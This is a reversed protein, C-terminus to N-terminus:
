SGKVKQNGSQHEACYKRHKLEIYAEHGKGKSYGM